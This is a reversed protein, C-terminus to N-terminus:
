NTTMYKFNDNQDLYKQLEEDTVDALMEKMDETNIEGPEVSVPNTETFNVLQNDIYQQLETDSVKELGAVPVAPPTTDAVQFYLWTTIALAGAVVAAAAIRWIKRRHMPVVKATQQQHQVKALMTAPFQEFYGAPAQYVNIAKLSSLIVSEKELEAQVFDIAMAGAMATDPFEEFYGAPTHFPSKKDLQNLLPSLIALEESASAASAAKARQLLNEALTDFYGAPVEYPVQAEIGAVVPSIAQLENLIHTRSEM